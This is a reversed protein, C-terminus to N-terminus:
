RKGELLGLAAHSVAQQQFKASLREQLASVQDMGKGEGRALWIPWCATVSPTHVNCFAFLLVSM